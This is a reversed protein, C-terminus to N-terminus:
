VVVGLFRSKLISRDTESELDLTNIIENVQNAYSDNFNTKSNNESM